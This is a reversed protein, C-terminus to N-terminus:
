LIRIWSHKDAPNPGWWQDAHWIPILWAALFRGDNKVNYLADPVWPDEWLDCYQGLFSLKQIEQSTSYTEHGTIIRHLTPKRIGIRGNLM